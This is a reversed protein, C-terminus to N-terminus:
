EDGYKVGPLPEDGLKEELEQIKGELKRIYADRISVETYFRAVEGSVFQQLAVFAEGPDVVLRNEEENM